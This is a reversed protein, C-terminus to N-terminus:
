FRWGLLSFLNALINYGVSPASGINVTLGTGTSPSIATTSVASAIAAGVGTQLVGVTAAVGSSVTLVKGIAGTLGSQNIVFQDNVAWSSGGANVTLVGVGMAQGELVNGINMLDNALQAQYFAAETPTFNYPTDTNALTLAIAVGTGTPDTVICVPAAGSGYGSGPTLTITAIDGGSLTYGSVTAQVSGAPASLPLPITFVPSTYNHNSGATTIAYSTGVGNQFYAAAQNSIFSSVSGTQTILLEADRGLKKVFALFEGSSRATM